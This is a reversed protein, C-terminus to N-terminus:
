IRNSKAALSVLKDALGAPLRTEPKILLFLDYIVRVGLTRDPVEKDYVKVEAELGIENLLKEYLARRAEAEQEDTHTELLIREM